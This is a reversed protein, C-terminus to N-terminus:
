GDELKVYSSDKSIYEYLNYIIYSNRSEYLEICYGVNFFDKSWHYDSLRCQTDFFCDFVCSLIILKRRFLFFLQNEINM